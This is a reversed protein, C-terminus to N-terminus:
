CAKSTDINTVELSGEAVFIDVKNIIKLGMREKHNVLLYAVGAGNLTDFIDYLEDPDERITM